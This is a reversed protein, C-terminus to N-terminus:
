SVQPTYPSHTSLPLCGAVPLMLVHTQDGICRVNLTHWHQPPLAPGRRMSCCSVGSCPVGQIHASVPCGTGVPQFCGGCGCGM